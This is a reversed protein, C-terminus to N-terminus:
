SEKLKTSSLDKAAKDAIQVAVQFKSNRLFRQLVNPAQYHSTIQDHKAIGQQSSLVCPFNKFNFNYVSYM